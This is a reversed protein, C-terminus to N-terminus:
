KNILIVKRILIDKKFTDECGKIRVLRNTNNLLSGKIAKIENIRTVYTKSTKEESFINYRFLTNKKNTKKNFLYINKKIQYIKIKEEKIKRKDQIYM